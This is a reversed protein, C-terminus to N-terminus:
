PGLGANGEEIIRATVFVILESNSQDSKTSRFLQGLIPLDGLIPFKDVIFTDSKRTFGALAITEGNAVNIAVQFGQSLQDPVETGDPGKKVQGFDTNQNQLMMTISNDANIRPRVSLYTQANLQQPNYTTVIGGAGIAQTASWYTTSVNSYVLGTQNNFTRVEPANVVRGWGENLAARLRTVLNGTSYNIFVPDSSRAFAGPRIGTMMSGREYVWDMGFTTANSNSTTIFELKVHVQKPKVDFKAIIGELERIADDTGQVIFASDSPDYTIRDIGDPVFIAGPRSDATTTAALAAAVTVASATAAAASATTAAASAAAAAV